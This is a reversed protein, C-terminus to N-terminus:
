RCKPSGLDQYLRGATPVLAPACLGGQSPSLICVSTQCAWPPVPTTHKRGAKFCRPATLASPSERGKFCCTRSPLAALGMVHFRVTASDGLTAPARGLEGVATQNRKRFLGSANRLPLSWSQLREKLHYFAKQEEHLFSKTLLETHRVWSRARPWEADAGQQESCGCHPQPPLDAREDAREGWGDWRTLSPAAKLLAYSRHPAWGRVSLVSILLCFPPSFSHHPVTPATPGCLVACSRQALSPEGPLPSPRASAGCM